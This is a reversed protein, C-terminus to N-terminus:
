ELELNNAQIRKSSHMESYKKSIKQFLVSSKKDIGESAITRDEELGGGSGKQDFLSSFPNSDEKGSKVASFGSGGGKAAYGGSAKKAKIDAEKDGQADPTQTDNGLSARAGGGGMGGGGGGGGAAGGGSGPSAAAAKDLIDNAEKAEDVFPSNIGAVQQSEINAAEGMEGFEDTSSGMDFSNSGNGGLTFDGSGVSASQGSVRNGPGLCEKATPNLVCKDLQVDLQEEEYSDQIKAVTDESKKYKSAEIGAALGKATYEALAMIFVQKQDKNAFVEKGYSDQVLKLKGACNDKINGKKCADEAGDVWGAIKAGLAAVAAAYAAAKEQNLQKMLSSNSKSAELSAGQFDGSQAKSQAEQSIKNQGNSARVQAQQELVMSAVLLHNYVRATSECSDYDVTYGALRKCIARGDSTQFADPASDLAVGAINTAVEDAAKCKELEPDIKIEGSEVPKDGSSKILAVCAQARSSQAMPQQMQQQQVPQGNNQAIPQSLAWPSVSLLLLSTISWKM